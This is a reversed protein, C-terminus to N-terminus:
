AFINFSQAWDDKLKKGQDYMAKGAIYDISAGQLSLDYQLDKNALDRYNAESSGFNVNRALAMKGDMANYASSAGYHQYAMGMRQMMLEAISM